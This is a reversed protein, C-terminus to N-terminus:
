VAKKLTPYPLPLHEEALIREYHEVRSTLERTLEAATARLEPDPMKNVMNQIDAALEAMIKLSDGQILLAPFRREPLKIVAYNSADSLSEVSITKM